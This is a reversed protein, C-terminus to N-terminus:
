YVLSGRSCGVCRKSGSRQIGRFAIKLALIYDESSTLDFDLHTTSHACFVLRPLLSILLNLILQFLVSHLQAILDFHKKESGSFRVELVCSQALPSLPFLVINFCIFSM